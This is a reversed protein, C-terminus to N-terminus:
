KNFRKLDVEPHLSAEHLLYNTFEASLQPALMYGKTGLGNFIYLRKMEPHQGMIPRRDPSTPRIGALHGVITPQEDTLYSLKELIESKGEETPNAEEANWSYTAGIRYHGNGTPLVFCKRNVSEEPPLKDSQASLVEGKTSQVPLFGFWPNNRAQYGEAFIIKDYSLAKYTATKPDLDSYIFEAKILTGSDGIFQYAADLFVPTNVWAARKVRGSGFDNKTGYSNYDLDDNTIVNMYEEFEALGQKDIWFGKEQESSFFRRIVIPHYFSKQSYSELNIYFKELYPILEDARWSKTMRRFVLPNILGAAVISSKNIGHDILTVNMGSQILHIALSCGGVGGGVILIKQSESQSSM